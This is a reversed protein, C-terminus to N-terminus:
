FDVTVVDYFDGVLGFVQGPNNTDNPNYELADVTTDYIYLTGGQDAVGEGQIVYVVQQALQDQGVQENRKAIAQLGTVDGDEPPIVVGGPPASGVATTLTNYISLCGRVETGAPPPLFPPVIETCTHSGIFLQGNPGLALRDHYGDTIIIPATNTISL